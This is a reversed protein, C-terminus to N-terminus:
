VVPTAPTEQETVEPEGFEITAVGGPTVDVALSGSILPDSGPVSVTILTSGPAVATAQVKALEDGAKPIFVVTAVSDDSNTVDLVVDVDFGRDDEPDVDWTVVQSTDITAMSGGATSVIEGTGQETVTAPGFKIRVPRRLWRLFVDAVLTVRGAAAVAGADTCGAVDCFCSAMLTAAANLAAVSNSESDDSNTVDLAYQPEPETMDQDEWQPYRKAAFLGSRARERIKEEGFKAWVWDPLYVEVPSIAAPEIGLKSQFDEIMGFIASELVAFDSDPMM